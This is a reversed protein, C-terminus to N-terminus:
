SGYTFLKVFEDLPPIPAQAVKMNEEVHSIRSMGVLASAIGPTSRTFQIARQADTKLGKLYEGIFKPLEKALRSQLISSSAVVSIEFKAAAEIASVAERNIMQNKIVLAEPMALNLPLQIVKFHHNAGGAERAAQTIEELSLGDNALLGQRYGSWTATGYMKIKGESVKRELMEFAARIRKLFEERSVGQFQEEPNHIYYIDVGDLGLNALSQELQNELYKPAICHSRSVLEDPTIIQPEFFNESLYSNMDRPPAGDFPIYGGKTAIILQDRSAIGETIIHKIARGVARESRQFRYNVATDIHNCGLEVARILSNEYRTDTLDDNKGLYTGFGISSTWLGDLERFHGESVSSQFRDRYLGTGQFTATNAM